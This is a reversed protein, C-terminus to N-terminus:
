RPLPGSGEEILEPILEAISKPTLHLQLLREYTEQRRRDRPRSNMRVYQCLRPRPELLPCGRVVGATEFPPAGDSAEIGVGNSVM